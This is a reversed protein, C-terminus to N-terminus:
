PEAEVIMTKSMNDHFTLAEEDVLSWAFGIGFSATSVITGLARMLRQSNEPETGDLSVIELQMWFMGQTRGIYYIFVLWYFSLLAFFVAAVTKIEPNAVADPRWYTTLAAFVGVFLGAAVAILTVDLLGALARQKIPAARSGLEAQPPLPSPPVPQAQPPVAIPPEPTRQLPRAQPLTKPAPLSRDLPPLTAAAGVLEPGNLPSEDPEDTGGERQRERYGEIKKTLEARWEPEPKPAPSPPLPNPEQTTKPIRSAASLDTGSPDFRRGCHACRRDDESNWYGCHPCRM